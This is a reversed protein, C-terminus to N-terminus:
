KLMKAIDFIEDPKDQGTMRAGLRHAAREITESGSLMKSIGRGSSAGLWTRFDDNGVAYNDWLWNPNENLFTVVGKLVGAANKNLKAM